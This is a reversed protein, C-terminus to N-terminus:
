KLSVIAVKLSEDLLNIDVLRMHPHSILLGKLNKILIDFTDYYISDIILNVLALISSRIM